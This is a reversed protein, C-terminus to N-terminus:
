LVREQLLRLLLRLHASMLLTLMKTIWLHSQTNLRQLLLLMLVTDLLLLADLMVSDLEPLQYGYCKLMNDEEQDQPRMSPITM